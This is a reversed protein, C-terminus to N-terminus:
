GQRAMPQLPGCLLRVLDLAVPLLPAMGDATTATIIHSGIAMVEVGAARVWVPPQNFPWATGNDGIYLNGGGFQDATFSLGLVSPGAFLCGDFVADDIMTAGFRAHDFRCAVFRSGVLCADVLDANEFSCQEFVAEALNAGRLDAGAFSVGVLHVGDLTVDRLDAGRYDPLGQGVKKVREM